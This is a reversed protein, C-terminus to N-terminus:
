KEHRSALKHYEPDARLRVLDPEASIERLQYGADLARGLLTLARSRQNALEAVLAGKFLVSPPLNQLRLVQDIEALAASTQGDRILYLALSSQINPDAPRKALDGRALQVARRYSEHMKDSDPATMRVADGLNGWRLYLNANLKVAEDFARVAEPYKGQFYLYTGLNSYTLSDPAIELAHQLVQAAEDTRGLQHYAAALNSYARSHDPALERMREFSAIAQPYRGQQYLFAGLRAHPEWEQPASVTARRYHQEAAAADKRAIALDGLRWLLEWNAPELTEAKQYAAAAEDLRGALAMVAGHAIHAIALQDSAGIAREAHAKARKQWEPDASFGNKRLYAVSLRAEASPYPSKLVLSRDLRAIARDVNGERYYLRLDEVARSYLEPASADADPLQAQPTAQTRLWQVLSPGRAWAVLMLLVAAVAIAAARVPITRARVRAPPVPLSRTEAEPADPDAAPLQAACRRLDDRLPGGSAYRGAPDKVLCRDVISVLGGPVHPAPTRLPMPPEHVIQRVLSLKTTGQYPLRGTLMQYLVVGFSYVDSRADVPDGLAQEPSMYAPTGISEGLVTLAAETTSNAEAAASSVRKAIGFDLVKVQGSAAIMVNGPKLDRHVIGADHAAELAAAVQRAYEVARSVTLPGRELVDALTEGRVYEMVIFELGDAANIEHITIINPHALASAARAERVFRERLLPADAGTSPLIKIAVDRQLRSDAARWVEGMGGAGLRAVIEYHLLKRGIM